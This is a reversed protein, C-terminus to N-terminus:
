INFGLESHSVFIVFSQHPSSYLSTLLFSPQVRIQSIKFPLLLLLFFWHCAQASFSSIRLIEGESTFVELSAFTEVEKVTNTFGRLGVAGSTRPLQHL